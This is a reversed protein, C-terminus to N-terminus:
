AHGGQSEKSSWVGILTGSRDELSDSFPCALILLHPQQGVFVARQTHYSWMRSTCRSMAAPAPVSPGSRPNGRGGAETFGSKTVVCTFSFFICTLRPNSQTDGSYFCVIRSPSSRIFPFSPPTIVVHIYKCPVFSYRIHYCPYSFFFLSSLKSAALLLHFEMRNSLLTNTFVLSAQLSIIM